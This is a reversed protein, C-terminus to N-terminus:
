RRKNIYRTAIIATGTVFTTFAVFLRNFNTSSLVAGTPPVVFVPNSALAHDQDKLNGPYYGVLKSTYSAGSFKKTYSMRRNAKNGYGLVEVHDELNCPLDKDSEAAIVRAATLKVTYEGGPAIYFGDDGLGQNDRTLVATPWNGDFQNYTDDDIYGEEYCDAVGVGMWLYDRNTGKETLLEYDPSFLFGEPNYNILELHDCTISSNNKVKITYEVEITAGQCIVEDIVEMLPETSGFEATKLSLVTNDNLIIKLGTVTSEVKLPFEQRRQVCMDQNDYGVNIHVYHTTFEYPTGDDLYRTEVEDYNDAPNAPPDIHYDGLVVYMKTKDSLLQAEDTIDQTNNNTEKFLISKFSLYQNDDVNNYFFNDFYGDVQERRESDEYGEITRDEPMFYDIERLQETIWKKIDNKILEALDVEDSAMKFYDVTDFITNIFDIEEQDDTHTFLSMIKIGENQVQRVKKRTNPGIINYLKYLTEAESEDCYVCTTGDSSPVGDTLLVINRNCHELYDPDSEDYYFSKEAKDLADVINTCGALCGDHIAAVEDLIKMLYAEDKTLSAARYNTGAYVVIGLYINDGDELLDHVLIKASNVAYQLKTMSTGNVNIITNRMSISADMLLFVQAAGERSNIIEEKIVSKKILTYHNKIVSPVYYDYGNYTLIDSVTFETEDVVSVDGYTVNVTQEGPSPTLHYHGSKPTIVESGDTAEVIAGPVGKRDEDVLESDNTSKDYITGDIYIYHPIYVTQETAVSTSGPTSPGGGGGADGPTYSPSPGSESQAGGALSAYSTPTLLLLVMIIFMALLFKKNNTLM